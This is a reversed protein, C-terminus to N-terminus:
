LTDGYTSHIHWKGHPTLYNLCLTGEKHDMEDLDQTVRMDLRPKYTPLEEGYARYAEHDLYLHQRGTLTRWPILEETNQCFAAYTRNDKVIGSWYPSTLIRKPSACLDAFTYKIGRNDQSMHTLSLGTKVSEAEYARHAMEGNTEAAFALIIECVSRDERLSPYVKGGWKEVPNQTVYEDYLDDVPYTLGHAGIGKDRFNPGLSIYKNYVDPYSRSVLTINPMTKGPIPECEGKTWDQITRQAIEAPTDHLLPTVVIDEQPEPCYEKAVESTKKAIEKFTAWDSKSEWAPPVAAQLPHIFSHMDTSNLDDKEYFTAAPLVIDSYLASSDMRFNLDVVLDMKGVPMKEHWVVEETKNKANEKAISNNHTGLYHKLFYEHGKASSLLANGRWIYWVRPFSEPNDPDEMAFRLKRDKLQKVTYEKIDEPTKAGQAKADAIVGANSKNFQ